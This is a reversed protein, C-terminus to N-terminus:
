NTRCPPLHYLHACNRGSLCASLDFDVLVVARAGTMTDYFQETYGAEQVLDPSISTVTISFKSM